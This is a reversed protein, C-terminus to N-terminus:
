PSPEVVPDRPLEEAKAPSESEAAANELAANDAMADDAPRAGREAGARAATAAANGVALYSELNAISHDLFSVARPITSDLQTTLQTARGTYEDVERQETRGWIRVTKIKDEAHRLRREARDVAKQEEICSPTGGGPLTRMRARNLEVKAQTIADTALRAEHRWYAPQEDLVWELGRRVELDVDVLASRVEECFEQLDARFERIVDISRVSAAQDM